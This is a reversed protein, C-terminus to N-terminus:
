QQEFEEPMIEYWSVGEFNSTLSFPLTFATPPSHLSGSSSTPGEIAHTGSSLSSHLARLSPPFLNQLVSYRSVKVARSELAVVKREERDLKAAYKLLLEAEHRRAHLESARQQLIRPAFTVHRDLFNALIKFSTHNQVHTNLLQLPFLDILFNLLSHSHDFTHRFFPSPPWVCKYTLCTYDEFCHTSILVDFHFIHRSFVCRLVISKATM